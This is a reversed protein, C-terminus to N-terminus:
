LHALLGLSLNSCWRLVDTDARCDGNCRVYVVARYISISRLNKRACMPGSAVTKTYNKISNTTDAPDQDTAIRINLSRCRKEYAGTEKAQQCYQTKEQRKLGSPFM